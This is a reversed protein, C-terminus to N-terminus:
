LKGKAIMRAYKTVTPESVMAREACEKRKMTGSAVYERIIEMAALSPKRETWRVGRTIIGAGITSGKHPQTIRRVPGSLRIAERMEARQRRFSAQENELRDAARDVLALCISATHTSGTDAARIHSGMTSM